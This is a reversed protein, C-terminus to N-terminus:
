ASLAKIIEAKTDGSKVEISREAALAVLEDKTLKELDIEAPSEDEYSQGAKLFRGSYYGPETVRRAVM